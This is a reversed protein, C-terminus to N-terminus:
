FGSSGKRQTEKLEDFICRTVNRHSSVFVKQLTKLGM